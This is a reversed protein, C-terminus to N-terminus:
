AAPAVPLSPAQNQVCDLAALLQVVPAPKGVWLVDPFENRLTEDLGADGSYFVFPIGRRKLERAVEFGNGDKLRVDLVALDPSVTRLLSLAEASTKSPGAIDYGEAELADGVDLAVILEDEVILVSCGRARRDQRPGGPACSGLRYCSCATRRDLGAAGFRPCFVV